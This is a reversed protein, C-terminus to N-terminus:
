RDRVLKIRNVAKAYKGAPIFNIKDKNSEGLRLKQKIEDKVEDDYRAGDILKYKVADEATQIAM